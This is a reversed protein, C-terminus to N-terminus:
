SAAPNAALPASTARERDYGGLRDSAISEQPSGRAQGTGSEPTRRGHSSFVTALGGQGMHKAGRKEWPIGMATLM